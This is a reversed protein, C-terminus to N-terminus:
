KFNTNSDLCETVEGITTSIWGEPLEMLEDSM